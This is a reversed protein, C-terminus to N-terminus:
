AKYINSSIGGAVYSEKSITQRSGFLIFDLTHRNKSWTITLLFFLTSNFKTMNPCRQSLAWYKKLLTSFNNM